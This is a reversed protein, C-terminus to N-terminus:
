VLAITCENHLTDHSMLREGSMYICTYWYSFVMADPLLHEDFAPFGIVANYENQQHSKVYPIADVYRDDM